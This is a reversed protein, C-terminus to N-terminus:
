KQVEAARTCSAPDLTKLTRKLADELQELSLEKQILEAVGLARAQHERDPTWAGSFIIVPQDLNLDRIHRLVALGNMVPMNLDLVIVDPQEQRFLELGREGNEALIVDYGKRRFFADLLQRISREDDIVLIKSM